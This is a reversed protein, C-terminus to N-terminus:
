RVLEVAAPADFTNQVEYVLAVPLVDVETPYVLYSSSGVDVEIPGVPSSSMVTSGDATKVGITDDPSILDDSAELRVVAFVQGDNTVYAHTWTVTAGAAEGSVDPTVLIDNLEGQDTSWAVVQGDDDVTFNSWTYVVDGSDTALTVTVEGSAEDGTVEGTSTDSSGAAEQAQAVAQRYDVYAAAPSGVAALDAAASWDQAVLAENFAVIATWDDSQTATDSESSDESGTEVAAADPTSAEESASGTSGCSAILLAAAAITPLAVARSRRIAM